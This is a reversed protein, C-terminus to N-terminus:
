TGYMMTSWEGSSIDSCRDKICRKDEGPLNSRLSTGWGFAHWVDSIDTLPAWLSVAKRSRQKKPLLVHEDVAEGQELMRKRRETSATAAKCTETVRSPVPWSSVRRGGRRRALKEEVSTGDHDCGCRSCAGCQSCCPRKCSCTLPSQMNACLRSGGILEFPGTKATEQRTWTM